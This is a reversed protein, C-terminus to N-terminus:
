DGVATLAIDNHAAIEDLLAETAGLSFSEKKYLNIAGFGIEQQLTDTIHRLLSAANWKTNDLVALRMGKLGTPRKAPTQAAVEVVGRPDYVAQGAPKSQDDM